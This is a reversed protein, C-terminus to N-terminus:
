LLSTVAYAAGFAAVFVLLSILVIPWLPGRAPLTTM